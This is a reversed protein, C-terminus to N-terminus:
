APRKETRRRPFPRRPRAHATPSASGSRGPLLRRPMLASRALTWIQNKARRAFRSSNAHAPGCCRDDRQDHEGDPQDRRVGGRRTRGPQRGGVERRRAAIRDFWLDGDVPAAVGDGDPTAVVARVEDDLGGRAGGAAAPSRRDVERRHTAARGFGLDRDARAPARDGDPRPGVAGVHDDLPGRLRGAAVHVGTISRESESLVAPSGWTAISEAPRATATQSRDSPKLVM